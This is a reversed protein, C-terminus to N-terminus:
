PPFLPNFHSYLLVSWFLLFGVMEFATIPEGGEEDMMGLVKYGIMLTFFLALTLLVLTVPFM